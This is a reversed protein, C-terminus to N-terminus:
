ITQTFTIADSTSSWTGVDVWTATSNVAYVGWIDFDQISRDGNANMDPWGTVGYYNNAVTIVVKQIAAGNYVGAYLISLAAIWVTDYTALAYVDPFVGNSEALYRPIFAAYKDSKTPACTVSLTKVKEAVDGATSAVITSQASGGSGFWMANLLDPYSKAQEFITALEDFTMTAIAVKSAGYQAVASDYDTKLQTLQASFDTTSPDYSIYDGIICNPCDQLYAPKFSAYLGTGWADNRAIILLDTFGLQVALRAYAKAQAADPVIDRFFYDNPIALSNATASGSFLVIHNADAYALDNRVEASSGLGVVVQVGQAALTQLKQLSTAPDTASDEETVAFRVSSGSQNLYTNVDAIGMEVAIKFRQGYASMDGSLPLIAGITITGSLGQQTTTMASQSPAPPALSSMGAYVVVIGIVLGIIFTGLAIKPFKAQSM